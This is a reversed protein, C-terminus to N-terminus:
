QPLIPLFRHGVIIFTRDSFKKLLFDFVAISDAVLKDSSMDEVDQMKNLGHGRFDFAAVTAFKSVEKAFLAYSAGSYGAGHLCIFVHGKSGALYISTGDEMYIMDDYYNKWSIPAFPSSKKMM